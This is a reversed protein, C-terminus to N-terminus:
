ARRSTCSLLSSTAFRHSQQPQLREPVPDVRRLRLVLRAPQRDALERERRQKITGSTWCMPLGDIGTTASPCSTTRPWRIARASPKMDTAICAGAEPTTRRIASAGLMVPRM